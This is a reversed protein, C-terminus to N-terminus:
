QSKVAGKSPKKHQKKKVKGSVKKNHKKSDRKTGKDDLDSEASKRKNILRKEGFGEKEMEMLSERKATTTNKLYQEVTVTDKVQELLKLKDSIREEITLVRNIDRETVMSVSDGKRGARATRGVRHVFDDPNSPMDYNIVFEVDPIDLGRSAVDTAVLIKAASAKFRHISNIRETQPMESHLSTVRFELKRLIRRLLEATKTRNVFIIGSKDDYEPLKLVQHLYAEKVYSPIFIYYLALKSPIILKDFSEVEHVFIHNNNEKLSRVPATITATFLLTQRQDAGPLVGFITALDKSFSDELLRDAEDLVLFKVRLLGNITDHGSNKIHDALRGPTAIIFHPKKQMDLAQQIMDDGGVVVKVRINMTAGLATFQEAIQLALERTPTLVLGYIGSPDQSWKDLMPLGFAITKGSGTKAGGICSKGNLIQPICAKQISTPERIKMVALTECLWKSVGLQEFSM